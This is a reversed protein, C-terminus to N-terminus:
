EMEELWAQIGGALSKVQSFGCKNLIRVAQLSRQGIQCYAVILKYKQPVELSGPLQSLPINIGGLNYNNYEEPERVDLLFVEAANIYKQLEHPTILVESFCSSHKMYSFPPLELERSNCLYCTPNKSFTYIRYDLALVDIQLLRGVLPNGIGLIWKIVETAQITGLIGPLVGLIGRERCNLLQEEGNNAPFLCNYCPGQPPAFVTCQGQFESVSASVNVKQLIFCTHNVLYRTQFNDSGDAIIDYQSFIEKANEATLRYEYIKLDINPNSQILKEKAALAKNKKLDNTTFLIQRQLNSIDVTDNDIIGLTGVGAGTLYLLLPNGLGGAGICLVKAEKLKMQGEHGVLNLSFHRKYRQLEEQSFKSSYAM